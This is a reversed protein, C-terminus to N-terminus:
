CCRGATEPADPQPCIRDLVAGCLEPRGGCCDEMLYALLARVGAIDAFYRISRGERRNWILGAATLISLNTSLTNQRVDLTESIEGASLGETGHQLLLRFVRLRTAQGLATFADIARETQM